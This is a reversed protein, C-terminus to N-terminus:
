QLKISRRAKKANLALKAAERAKDMCERRKVKASEALVDRIVEVSESGRETNAREQDWAEYESMVRKTFEKCAGGKYYLTTYPGSESRRFFLCLKFPPCPAKIVYADMDSYNMYFEWTNDIGAHSPIEVEAGSHHTVHTCAGKDNFRLKYSGVTKWDLKGSHPAFKVGAKIKNLRQGMRVHEHQYVRFSVNKICMQEPLKLRPPLQAGYRFLHFIADKDYAAIKALDTVNFDSHQAVFYSMFDHEMKEVTSVSAFANDGFAASFSNEQMLRRMLLGYLPAVHRPDDICASVLQSLQLHNADAQTDININGTEKPKPLKKAYAHLKVPKAPSSRSAGGVVPASPLPVVSETETQGEAASSSM